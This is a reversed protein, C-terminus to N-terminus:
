IGRHHQALTRIEAINLRQYYARWAATEALLVKLEAQLTDIEETRQGAGAAIVIHDETWSTVSIQGSAELWEIGKRATITRHGLAAALRAVMVQGGQQNLDHKLLSGLRKLFAEMSDVNATANCLYICRPKVHQLAAELERWGCPASWIILTEAERLDTRRVVPYPASTIGDAWILWDAQLSMQALDKNRWDIVEIQPQPASIEIVPVPAIQFDVWEVSLVRAGRYNTSKLTYAVDIPGDAVELGAGRWWILKQTHGVSDGVVVERHEGKRGFTRDHQVTVHRTVLTVAPNGEGFPALRELEQALELTLQDLALEADVVLGTEVRPDRITDIAKSLAARFTPVNDIPLSLGAAGPHGGVGTLFEGCMKLATTIDVGAVSRASGRATHDDTVLLITPRAYQEALRNAVPGIVGSHWHPSSLILAGYDLLTPDKAIQEQAAATIQDMLLKRQNNLGELQAALIRARTLNPTTLLEVALNADGLRGLANLRPGISFGITEASVNAATVQASTMLAQLGLRTTNQLRLLGRQLLYRADARLEAVDAVIGLAVLDLYDDAREDEGALHLVQQALKFAVGVGPLSRLPHDIPLRKPNILADANPLEDPLDHHDTVLVTVDRSKAHAIAAHEAIGTDCTLLVHIHQDLLRNLPAIKIGHSETLRHPIYYTVDAKLDRLMSVLLTTSTQGDTDFDGWVAIKEGRTIARYLRDAALELDPLAAPPAPAYRDPNLFAAAAEPTTLGRQTLLRAILPHGGIAATLAPDVIVPPPSIWM